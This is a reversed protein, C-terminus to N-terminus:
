KLALKTTRISDLTTKPLPDAFAAIAALGGQQVDWAFPSGLVDLVQTVSAMIEPGIGDGPILTAPIPARSTQETMNQRELTPDRVVVRTCPDAEVYRWLMMRDRPPRGASPDAPPPTTPGYGLPRWRWRTTTPIVSISAPDAALGIWGAKWRLGKGPSIARGPTSTPTTSPSVSISPAAGTM